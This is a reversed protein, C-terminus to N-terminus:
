GLATGFIIVYESLSAHLVVMSGMAGGANNFLWEMDALPTQVIHKPYRQQLASVVDAVVEDATGNRAVATRAISQLVAPDFVTEQMAVLMAVAVALAAVVHLISVM